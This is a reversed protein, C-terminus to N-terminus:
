ANVHRWMKRLRIDRVQERSVGLEAALAIDTRHGTSQKLIHRVSTETLKSMGSREGRAFNRTARNATPSLWRLNAARNDSRVGNIHDAHADVSPAAGHFAACVLRHIYADKGAGLSVRCYGNTHARPKLVRGTDRRRVEGLSSVDYQSDPIRVWWELM